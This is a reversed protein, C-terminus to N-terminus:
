IIIRWLSLHNNQNAKKKKKKEKERENEKVALFFRRRILCTPPSPPSYLRSLICPSVKVGIFNM